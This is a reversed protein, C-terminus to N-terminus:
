MFIGIKEASITPRAPGRVRAVQTARLAASVAGGDVVVPLCVKLNSFSSRWKLHASM